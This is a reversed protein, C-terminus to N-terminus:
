ARAPMRRLRLPRAPGAALPAAGVPINEGENFEYGFSYFSTGNYAPSGSIPTWTTGGNTSIRVNFGDWADYNGTGGTDEMAYDMMFTLTPTGAPLTIAPTDLVVYRHNTYGGIM